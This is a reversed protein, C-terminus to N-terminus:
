KKTIRQKIVSEVRKFPLVAGLFSRSNKHARHGMAEANTCCRAAPMCKVMSVCM